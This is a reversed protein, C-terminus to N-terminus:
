CRKGPKIVGWLVIGVLLGGGFIIACAELPRNRFTMSANRAAKNAGESASRAGSKLLLRGDRLVNRVDGCVKQLEARRNHNSPMEM